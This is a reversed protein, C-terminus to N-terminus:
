SVVDHVLNSLEASFDAMTRIGAPGLPVWPIANVRVIKDAWSQANSGAFYLNHQKRETFVPIERAVVRLGRSIAEEITLGFGEDEAPAVAITCGQAVTQVKLDDANTLWKLRGGYDPHSRIRAFLQDSDWGQRGILTLDVDHDNRRLIDFADLLLGHGKRPEVTSVYMMSIRQDAYRAPNKLPFSTGLPIVHIQGRIAWPLDLIEEHVKHTTVIVHDALGFLQQLYIRFADPGGKPFWQPNRLPIVDHVLFMTPLSRRKRERFVATFDVRHNLDLMLMAAVNSLNVLDKKLVPDQDLFDTQARGLGQPAPRTVLPRLDIGMTGLQDMLNIHTERIVRPIGTPSVSRAYAQIESGVVPVHSASM